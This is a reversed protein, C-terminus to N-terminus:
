KIELHYKRSCFVTEQEGGERPGTSGKKYHGGGGGKGKRTSEVEVESLHCLPLGFLEELHFPSRIM